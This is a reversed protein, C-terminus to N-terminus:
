SWMNNVSSPITIVIDHETDEILTPNMKIQCGLRSTEQVDFALDLMDLEADSPPELQSYTHSDLIVHCTSCSANGGCAGEIYEGLLESGSTSRALDLISDGFKWKLEFETHHHPVQFCVTRFPRSGTRGRREQEQRISESLALLGERGLSELHQVNIDNTGYFPKLTKLIAKHLSADINYSALYDSLQPDIDANASFLRFLPFVEHRRGYKTTTQLLRMM